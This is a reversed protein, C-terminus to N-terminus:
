YRLNILSILINIRWKKLISKNKEEIVILLSLLTNQKKWPWEKQLM